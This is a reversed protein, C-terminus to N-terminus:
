RRGRVFYAIPGVFNVGIILAWVSKKGRVLRAPRRALDFWAASALLFQVAAGIRIRMQQQSTLDSWSTGHKRRTHGTGGPAVIATVHEVPALASHTMKGQSTGSEQPPM